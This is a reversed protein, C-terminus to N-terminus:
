GPVELQTHTIVSHRILSRKFLRKRDFVSDSSEDINSQVRVRYM